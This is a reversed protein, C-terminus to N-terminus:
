KKFTYDLDGSISDMKLKKSGNGFSKSNMLKNCSVHYDDEYGDVCVNIDGSVSNCVIEDAVLDIIQTDGSVIDSVFKYSRCDNVDIGGSVCNIHLDNCICEDIEIDGSVGDISIKETKIDDVDIDGSVTSVKINKLMEYPIQLKVDSCGDDNINRSINFFSIVIGADKPVEKFCLIDDKLEVEMRSSKGNFYDLQVFSKHWGNISIDAQITEGNIQTVDYYQHSQQGEQSEDDFEHNYRKSTDNSAALTEAIVSPKELGNIVDEESEGNEIHDDIIEEFYSIINDIEDYKRKKLEYRLESLFSNKM